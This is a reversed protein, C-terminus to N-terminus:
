RHQLRTYAPFQVQQWLQQLEATQHWNGQLLWGVLTKAVNPYCVAEAAASTLWRAVADASLTSLRTGLGLLELTKANSQQEFQGRLPKVLLKKGLALAESPLEFGANSLVGSCHHLDAAFAQQAPPRWDINGDTTQQQVQPHYCIFRQPALQQLLQRIQPMAEFPLYVLVYGADGSGTTASPASAQVISPVTAPVIPPLLPQNFHFWHLGLAQEVPAFHRIIMRNLAGYGEVPVQHHFSNQHSIGVSPIGQRKAAWASVPEFDNVVLDYGTLDLQQIEQWLRRPQAQLVTQPLDLKGHHSVFSLGQRTQYAGFDDMAFYGAPDRGSFLFDVQVGQQLFQQAMVRSRAIHGNGTGQVGYLIRM